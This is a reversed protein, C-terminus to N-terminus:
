YRRYSHSTWNEFIIKVWCPPVYKTFMHWRLRKFVIVWIEVSLILFGKFLLACILNIPILYMSIKTKKNENWINSLETNTKISIASEKTLPVSVAHFIAHFISYPCCRRVIKFIHIQIHINSNQIHKYKASLSTIYRFRKKQSVWSSFLKLENTVEVPVM